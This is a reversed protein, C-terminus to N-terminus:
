KNTQWRTFLQWAAKVDTAIVAVTALQKAFYFHKALAADTFAIFIPKRAGYAAGIEVLTGLTEERDIWAFLADADSVEELCEDALDQCECGHNDTLSPGGYSFNGVTPCPHHYKQYYWKSLEMDSCQFIERRWPDLVEVYQERVKEIGDDEDCYEYRELVRDKAFVAGAFYVCLKSTIPESAYPRPRGNEGFEFRVRQAEGFAHRLRSSPSYWPAKLVHTNGTCHCPPPSYKFNLRTCFPCQKIDARDFILKGDRLKRCRFLNDPPEVTPHGIAFLGDCGSAQMLALLQPAGQQAAEMTPKVEVYTKLEPLFFDPLYRKGDLDFGEPEYEWAIGAADFFVAYRAELRSRFRYGRYETEIARATNM